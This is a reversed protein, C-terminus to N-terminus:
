AGEKPQLVALLEPQAEAIEPPIFVSINRSQTIRDWVRGTQALTFYQNNMKFAIAGPLNQTHRLTVGPLALRILNQLEDPDAIKVREPVRNILEDAGVRSSLALFFAGQLYDDNTVTGAWISKEVLRLPISICNPQILVDLLGRIKEALATFCPGLNDHDYQPLGGAKADPSFTSLAGALRLLTVWVAEPHGRRVTWIHQLEPVCSNMTHRLWFAVAESANLSLTPGRSGLSDAKSILIEIQRRLLNMLYTSSAIDLCPAIFAPDLIYVGAENRVIRAIRLTVYGDLNDSGFLLRLNKTAVQISKAEDYGNEDVIELTDATYRTTAADGKPDARQQYNKQGPHHEPLALFVDLAEQNPPFHGAIQRGGPAADPEPISVLTGDPLIGSYRRLSVLGNALSDEDIRLDIAGWNAFASASFRFQLADEAWNDAAQFHQPTLFM